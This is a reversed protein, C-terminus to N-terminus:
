VVDAFVRGICNHVVFQRDDEREGEALREGSWKGGGVGLARGEGILAQEVDAATRGDATVVQGEL